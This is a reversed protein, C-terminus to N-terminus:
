LELIDGAVLRMGQQAADISVLRQEVGNSSWRLVQLRLPMHTARERSFVLKGAQIAEPGVRDGDARAIVDGLRLGAKAATGEPVVSAVIVGRTRGSLDPELKRFSESDVFMGKVEPVPQGQANLFMRQFEIGDLTYRLVLRAFGMTTTVPRKQADEFWMELLLDREDYRFKYSSFGGLRVVPRMSAGFFGEETLNGREDYALRKISYGMTLVTPNGDAGFYRREILRDRTDYAFTSSSIGSPDVQAEGGSGLVRKGTLRGRADYSMELRSANSKKLLMPNNSADFYSQSTQRDKDDYTMAMRAYDNPMQFLRGRADLRWSEIINGRADFVKKVQAPKDRSELLTGTATYYQHLVKRGREDYVTVSRHIGEADPIPASTDDFCAVETQLGQSNYRYAYKACGEQAIVPRGDIGLFQRELERGRADFQAVWEAYGSGLVAPRRQSDFYRERVKNGLDDWEFETRFIGSAGMWPAGERSYVSWATQNGRADYEYRSVFSGDESDAAPNGAADLFRLESLNGKDDYKRLEHSAARLRGQQLDVELPTIQTKNGRADYTYREGAHGHKCLVPRAQTDFHLKELLNGREDYSLTQQGIKENNILTPSGDEALYRESTRLGRSNNEFLLTSVGTENNAPRGDLGFYSQSISKGHHDYSATVRAWGGEGLTPRGLSDRREIATLNGQADYTMDQRFAGTKKNISPRRAADYAAEFTSRGQEDQGMAIIAAGFDTRLTLKDATDYYAEETQGYEGYKKRIIAYGNFLVREGQAGWASSELERGLEDWVHRIRAYGKKHFTPKGDPDYFAIEVPLGLSSYTFRVESYGDRHTTRSRGRGYFERSVENGATDYVRVVRAFGEKGVTPQGDPNFFSREKERGEEDFTLRIQAYGDHSSVPKRTTDFYSVSILNAHADYDYVRSAVGASDPSPKGDVDFTQEELCNGAADLRRVLRHFLRKGLTPAGAADFLRLEQLDGQSSLIRVQIAEGKAVASPQGEADLYTQRTINGRGDREYRVGFVGGSSQRRAGYANIYREGMIWGSADLELESGFVGAWDLALPLGTNDQHMLRHGEKAFRKASLLVNSRSRYEVSLLAGDAGYQPVLSVVEPKRGVGLDPPPSDLQEEPNLSLLTGHGSIRQIRSVRGGVFEFRYSSNRQRQQKETLLSVPILKGGQVSFDVGYALDPRRVLAVVGLLLSLSAVVALTSLWRGGLLKRRGKGEPAHGMGLATGEVTGEAKELPTASGPPSHVAAHSPTHAPAPMGEAETVRVESSEAIRAGVTLPAPAKVPDVRSAMREALNPLLDHANVGKYLLVRGGDLGSRLKQLLPAASTQIRTADSDYFAWLLDCGAYGDGNAEALAKTFIDDWGGYALVVVTHERLLRHLSALLKPRHQDLQTQTHLTDSRFWGGHLHVVHHGPAVTNKLGSDADLFSSYCQGGAKRIAVEILPDFNSTLSIRGFHAPYRTLIKGLAEVGPTLKWRDFAHELAYTEQESAADFGALVADENWPQGAAETRAKEVSLVPQLVAHRIIRNVSDQGARHHLLHRLAAQYRNVQGSPLPADLSAMFRALSEPEAAFERRILDIVGEVGPVVPLTLGSGLVFIVRRASLIREFLGQEDAFDM